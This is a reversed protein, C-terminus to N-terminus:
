SQTAPEPVPGSVVSRRGVKRAVYLVTGGLMGVGLSVLISVGQQSALARLPHIGADLNQAVPLAALFAIPASVIQLLAGFMGVLLYYM